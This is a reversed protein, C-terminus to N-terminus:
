ESMINPIYGYVKLRVYSNFMKYYTHLTPDKKRVDDLMDLDM